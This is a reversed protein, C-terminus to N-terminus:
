RTGMFVLGHFVFELGRLARRRKTKVGVKGL